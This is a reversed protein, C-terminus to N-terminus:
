ANSRPPEFRPQEECVQLIYASHILFKNTPFFRKRRRADDEWVDLKWFNTPLERSALSVVPERTPISDCSSAVSVMSGPSAQDYPPRTLRM